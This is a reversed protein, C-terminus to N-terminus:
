QQGFYSSVALTMGTFYPTNSPYHGSRLDPHCSKAPHKGILGGGVCVTRLGAGVASHRIPRRALEVFGSLHVLQVAADGLSHLAVPGGEVSAPSVQAAPDRDSNRKELELPTLKLQTDSM